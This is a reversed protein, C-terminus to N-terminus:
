PFLTLGFLRIAVFAGLRGRLPAVEVTVSDNPLLQSVSTAAGREGSDPRKGSFRGHAIRAAPRASVAAAATM